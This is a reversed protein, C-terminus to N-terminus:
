PIFLKNVTHFFLFKTGKMLKSSRHCKSSIITTKGNHAWILIKIKFNVAFRLIVLLSLLELYVRKPSGMTGGSGGGEGSDHPPYPTAEGGLLLHALIWNLQCWHRPFCRKGLCTHLKSLVKTLLKPTLPPCLGGRCNFIDSQVKVMMLDVLLIFDINQIISTKQNQFELMM